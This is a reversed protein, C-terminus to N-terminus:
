FIIEKKYKEFEDVIIQLEEKKIITVAFYKTSHHRLIKQKAKFWYIFIIVWKSMAM